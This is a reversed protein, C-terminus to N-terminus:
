KQDASEPIFKGLSHPTGFKPYARKTGIAVSWQTIRVQNRAKKGQSL